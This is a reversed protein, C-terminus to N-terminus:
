NNRAYKERAMKMKSIKILLSLDFFDVKKLQKHNVEVISSKIRVEQQLSYCIFLTLVSFIDVIFGKKSKKPDPAETGKPNGM